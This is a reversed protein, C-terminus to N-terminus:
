KAEKWKTFKEQIKGPLKNYTEQNIWAVYSNSYSSGYHNYFYGNKKQLYYAPQFSYEEKEDPKSLYIEDDTFYFDQGIIVKQIKWQKIALKKLEKCEKEVKIFKHIKFIIGTGFIAGAIWAFGRLFEALMLNSVGGPIYTWGIFDKLTM